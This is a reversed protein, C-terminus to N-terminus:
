HRYMEEVLQRYKEYVASKKVKMTRTLLGNEISFPESLVKFCHIREFPRFNNRNQIHEKLEKKLIKYVDTHGAMEKDPVILAGLHSKDQGVLMVQCIYPSKLLLEELPQPEINEGNSLVILDKQRGTLVLDNADTLWGLDGTNLWGDESLVEDTAVKDKYYGKMVQQGRAYVVGDIIKIETRPIPKGATCRMNYDQRRLTLVPSSETLGYGVIINVGVTEYFDELYGALLGGGSIGLKFSGGLALRIKEYILSEGMYYLPQTAYMMILAPMKNKTKEPSLGTIVRRAKIYTEGIKLFFEALKRVIYPSKKLESQIGEYIAEWIRPVAVLYDPKYIKIDNKFNPINTYILTVGRSLMFYECTREYVHWAPLISLAKKGASIVLTPEINIVQSMLNGHTIMVGKPKGTTGSTYVITAIDDTDIDVGNFENKAGLKLVENFSYINYKKKFIANIYEDSLCVIFDIKCDKLKKITELNEAVLGVSDSHEIIYTLEEAPTQSGRVADVAGCMLIAQDAVLWKSCNESFLSVHQGKELGLSQLGAAFLRIIQYMEKYTLELGCYSDIIATVNSYNEALSVWLGSIGKNKYKVATVM